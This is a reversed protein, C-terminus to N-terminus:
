HITMGENQIVSVLDAAYRHECALTDGYFQADEPATELLWEKAKTNLPHFLIISGENELVFDWGSNWEMCASIFLERKFKPNTKALEEAFREVIDAWTSKSSTESLVRAIFQFHKQTLQM